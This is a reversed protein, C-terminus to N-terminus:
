EGINRKRLIEYLQNLKELNVKADNIANFVVIDYDQTIDYSFEEIVQNFGQGVIQLILLGNNDFTYKINKFESKNLKELIENQIWTLNTVWAM